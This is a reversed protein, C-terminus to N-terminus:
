KISEDIKLTLAKEKLKVLTLMEQISTCGHQEFFRIADNLGNIAERATLIKNEECMNEADDVLDENSEKVVIEIINNEYSIRSTEPNDSIWKATDEGSVNKLENIRRLCEFIVVHSVEQEETQNKNNEERDTLLKQWCKVITQPKVEDWANSVWYIFQRLNIKQLHESLSLGDDQASIISKLFKHEYNYKVCQLTENDMPGIVSSLNHLILHIQLESTPRNQFADAPVNEAILIAKLPLNKSKLFETVRPTFEVDFWENLVDSDIWLSTQHSYFIPLCQQLNILTTSKVSKGLIVLPLKLSGDSNCCTMITIRDGVFRRNPLSKYNLITKDCKFIQCRLLSQEEVTNSLTMTLQNLASDEPSKHEEFLIDPLSYKKKWHTFWDNSATFNDKGGLLKNLELAKERIMLGSIQMDEQKCHSYWAILAEGVYPNDDVRLKKRSATEEHLADRIKQEDHVWRRLTSEGIGHEKRVEAKPRGAKVDNLVQVKEQLSFNKIRRKATTDVANEIQPFPFDGKFFFQQLGVTDNNDSNNAYLTVQEYKEAKPINTGSFASM